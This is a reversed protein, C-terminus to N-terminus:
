LGPEPSLFGHGVVHDGALNVLVQVRAALAQEDETLGEASGPDDDCKLGLFWLQRNAATLQWPNAEQLKLVTSLAGGTPYVLGGNVRDDSQGCASLYAAM